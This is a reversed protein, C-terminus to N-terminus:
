TKRKRDNQLGRRVWLVAIIIAIPALGVILFPKWNWYPFRYRWPETAFAMFIVWVAALVTFLRQRGTLHM